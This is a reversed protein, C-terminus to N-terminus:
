KWGPAISFSPWASIRSAASAEKPTPYNERNRACHTIFEAITQAPFDKNVVLVFANSALVSVPAFDKIPDYGLKALAPNITLPPTAGWLLTYGDAPARAVAECAIAGNGGVRNEVVFSQGFADGLRQATMRAIGDSNGGAAYPAILRVPRHPWDQGHAPQMGLLTLAVLANASPAVYRGTVARLFSRPLKGGIHLRAPRVWIAM